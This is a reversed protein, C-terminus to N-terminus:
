NIHLHLSCMKPDCKIPKGDSDVTPPQINVHHTVKLPVWRGGKDFTIRTQKFKALDEDKFGQKDTIVLGNEHAEM